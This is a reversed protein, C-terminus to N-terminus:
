LERSNTVCHAVLRNCVTFFFSCVQFLVNIWRPFFETEFVAAIQHVPATDVWGIIRHSLSLSLSALLCEDTVLLCEDTVFLCEDTIFM